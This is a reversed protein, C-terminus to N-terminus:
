YSNVASVLGIIMAEYLRESLNEYQENVEAERFGLDNWSGMAGFVWANAAGFFVQQALLSYNKLVIIDHHYFGAYPQNSNLSILAKQFWDAWMGESNTRAFLEIQTLTAELQKKVDDLPSQLIKTEQKQVYNEYTVMWIKKDVDNIDGVEWNPYWLNCYGKYIAQIIWTGGGGTLGALKHDKVDERGSHQYFVKLAICGDQKLYAFWELPNSVTIDKKGGFFKRETTKFHVQKDFQFVSNDPFYASSLSGKSIYENGYSVLSLLQAVTGVM